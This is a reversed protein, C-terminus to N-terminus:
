IFFSTSMNKYITKYNDNDTNFKIKMKWKNVQFFSFFLYLNSSLSKMSFILILLICSHEESGRLRPPYHRAFFVIYNKKELFMVSRSPKPNQM